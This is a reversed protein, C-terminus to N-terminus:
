CQNLCFYKPSNYHTRLKLDKTKINNIINKLVLQTLINWYQDSESDTPWNESQRITFRLLKEINRMSKTQKTHTSSDHNTDLNLWTSVCSGTHRGVTSPCTWAVVFSFFLWLLLCTNFSRDDFFLLFTQFVQVKVEIWLSHLCSHIPVNKNSQECQTTWLIACIFRHM